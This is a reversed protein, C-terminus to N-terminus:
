RGASGAGEIVKRRAKLATHNQIFNHDDKDGMAVCSQKTSSEPWKTPLQPHQEHADTLMSRKKQM